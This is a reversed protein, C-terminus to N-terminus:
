KDKSSIILVKAVQYLEIVPAKWKEQPGQIHPKAHLCNTFIEPNINYAQQFLDLLRFDKNFAATLEQQLQRNNQCAKILVEIFKRNLEDSGNNNAELEKFKIKNIAKIKISKYDAGFWGNVLSQQNKAKIIHGFFNSGNCNALEKLDANALQKSESHIYEIYKSLSTHTAVTTRTDKFESCLDNLEEAMLQIIKNTPFQALEKNLGEKSNKKVLLIKLANQLSHPLPSNSYPLFKFIFSSRDPQLRHTALTELNELTIKRAAAYDVAENITKIVELKSNPSIKKNTSRFIGSFNVNFLSLCNM